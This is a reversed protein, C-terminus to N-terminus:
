RAGVAVPKRGGGAGGGLSSAIVLIAEILMLLALSILVLGIWPVVDFPSEGKLYPLLKAYTMSGLAWMSMAYMWVTPIGTVIWVWRQRRTRWLWVTVTLLTLAALLQNSAGFLSWFLLWAPVPQGQANTVKQMVFM